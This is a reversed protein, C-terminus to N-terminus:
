IPFWTSTSTQYLWCFTTNATPMATVATGGVTQGTNGSITVATQIQTSRICERAGDGPNPEFTFTGTALTGAPRILYYTQGNVFTLTFATLPVTIQYGTTNTIMSPPVYQSQAQPQGGVVDQFLDNPSVSQLTPVNIGQAFAAGCLIALGAGLALLKKM